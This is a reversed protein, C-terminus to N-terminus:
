RSKSAESTRTFGSSLQRYSQGLYSSVSESALSTPLRMKRLSKMSRDNSYDMTRDDLPSYAFSQSLRSLSSAQLFIM